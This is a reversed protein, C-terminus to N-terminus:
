KKECIKRMFCIKYNERNKKENCNKVYSQFERIKIRRSNELKERLILTTFVENNERSKSNKSNLFITFYFKFNASCCLDASNERIKEKVSFYSFFLNCFFRSIEQKINEVEIERFFIVFRLKTM